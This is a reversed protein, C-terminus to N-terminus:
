QQDIFALDNGVTGKFREFLVVAIGQFPYERFEGPALIRGTFRISNNIRQISGIFLINRRKIERILGTSFRAPTSVYWSYWISLIFSSISVRLGFAINVARFFAVLLTCDGQSMLKKVTSIPM